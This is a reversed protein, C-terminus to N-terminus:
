VGAPQYYKGILDVLKTYEDLNLRQKNHADDVMMTITAEDEQKREILRKYLAYYAYSM